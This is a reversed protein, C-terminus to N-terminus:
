EHWLSFRCSSWKKPYRSWEKSIRSLGASTKVHANGRAGRKLNVSGFIREAYIKFRAPRTQHISAARDGSVNENRPASLRCSDQCPSLPFGDSVAKPRKRVAVEASWDARTHLRRDENSLGANKPHGGNWSKKAAAEMSKRKYRTGCRPLRVIKSVYVNRGACSCINDQLWNIIKTSLHVPM